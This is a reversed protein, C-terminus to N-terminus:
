SKRIDIQQDGTHLPESDTPVTGHITYLGAEVPQGSLDTQDWVEELRISAGPALTELRLIAQTVGNDRQWVLHGDDATVTVDFVIERGQLHLDLPKDSPNEMVVAIAVPQGRVASEPAVLLVTCESV